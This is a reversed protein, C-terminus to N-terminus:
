KNPIEWLQKKKCLLFALLPLFAKTKKTSKKIVVTVLKILLKANSDIEDHQKNAKRHNLNTGSLM